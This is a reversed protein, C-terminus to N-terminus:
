KHPLTQPQFRIMVTNTLCKRMFIWTVISVVLFSGFLLMFRATQSHAKNKEKTNVCEAKLCCCCVNLEKKLEKYLSCCVAIEPAMFRVVYRNLLKILVSTVSKQNHEANHM